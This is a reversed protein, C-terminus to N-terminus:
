ILIKMSRINNVSCTNDWCYGKLNGFLVAEKINNIEEIKIEFLIIDDIIM